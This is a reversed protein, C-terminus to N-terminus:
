VNSRNTTANSASITPEAAILGVFHATIHNITRSDDTEQEPNEAPCAGPQEEKKRASDTLNKCVVNLYLHRCNPKQASSENGALSLEFRSSVMIDELGFANIFIIHLPNLYLRPLVPSIVKLVDYV